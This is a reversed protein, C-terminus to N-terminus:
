LAVGAYFISSKKFDCTCSILHHTINVAWSDSDSHPQGTIFPYLGKTCTSIGYIPFNDFACLNCLVIKRGKIVLVVMNHNSNIVLFLVTASTKYVNWCVIYRDLNGHGYPDNVLIFLVKTSHQVNIIYYYNMFLNQSSSLNFHLSPKVSYHIVVM